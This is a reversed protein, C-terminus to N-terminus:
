QNRTLKTGLAVLSAIIIFLGFIVTGAVVVAGPATHSIGLSNLLVFPMIMVTAGVGTTTILIPVYWARNDWSFAPVVPKPLAPLDALLEALMQNTSANQAAHVRATLQEDSIYGERNMRELWRICIARQETGARPKPSIIVDNPLAVSHINRPSEPLSNPQWDHRM